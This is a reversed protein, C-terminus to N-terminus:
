PHMMCPDAPNPVALDMEDMRKLRETVHDMIRGEYVYNGIHKLEAPLYAHVKGGTARWRHCFAYDETLYRRDVIATDFIASVEHGMEDQECLLEPHAARTTEIAKRSIMMFGTGIEKVEICGNLMDMNQGDDLYNVVLAAGSRKFEPLAIGPREIATCLARNWDIKKQPCVAGIVDHPLAMMAMVDESRFEMDADIFLMRDCTSTYFEHVCRARARTILSDSEIHFFVIGLGEDQAKFSLKLMSTLYRTSVLAGYAPTCIMLTKGAFQRTPITKAGAIMQDLAEQANSMRLM